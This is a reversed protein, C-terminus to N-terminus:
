VKWCCSQEKWLIQLVQPVGMGTWTQKEVDVICAHRASIFSIDFIYDSFDDHGIPGYLFQSLNWCHFSDIHRREPVVHSIFGISRSHSKWINRHHFTINHAFNWRRNIWCMGERHLTSVRTNFYSDSALFDFSPDCATYVDSEQRVYWCNKRFDDNGCFRRSLPYEWDLFCRWVDFTWNSFANQIISPLASIAFDM